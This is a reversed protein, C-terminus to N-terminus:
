PGLIIFPSLVNADLTNKKGCYIAKLPLGFHLYYKTIVTHSVVMYSVGSKYYEQLDPIPFNINLNRLDKIPIIFGKVQLQDPGYPHETWVPAEVDKNQVGAFLGVAIEQLVDLDEAFPLM